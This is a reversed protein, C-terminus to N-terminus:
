YFNAPPHEIECASYAFMINLRRRIFHGFMGPRIAQGTALLGQGNPGDTGDTIHAVELVRM